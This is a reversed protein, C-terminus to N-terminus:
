TTGDQAEDFSEGSGALSTERGKTAVLFPSISGGFPDGRWTDYLRVTEFGATEALEAVREIDAANLFHTEFLLEDLSRCAYVYDARLVPEESDHNTFRYLFTVDDPRGEPGPCRDELLQGSANAAHAVQLVLKGGGRLAAAFRGLIKRAQELSACYNFSWCLSVLGDFNSEEHLEQMPCRRVRAEGVRSRALEVMSESADIGFVDFGARQARDLFVGTGCGVDLVRAGRPLTSLEDLVFQHDHQYHEPPTHLDYREAAWGFLEHDM